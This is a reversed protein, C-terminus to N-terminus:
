LNCVRNSYKKYSNPESLSMGILVLSKPVAANVDVSHPLFSTLGALHGQPFVSTVVPPAASLPPPLLHLKGRAGLQSPAGFNLYYSSNKRM